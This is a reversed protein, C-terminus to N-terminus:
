NHFREISSDIYGAQSACARLTFNNPDVTIPGTYLQSTSGEFGDAATGPYPFSDDTTRM